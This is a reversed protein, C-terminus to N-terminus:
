VRPSKVNGTEKERERERGRERERKRRRFLRECNVTIRDTHARIGRRIYVGPSLSILERPFHRSAAVRRPTSASSSSFHSIVFTSCWYSKKDTIKITTCVFSLNHTNCVLDCTLLKNGHFTKIKIKIRSFCLPLVYLVLITKRKTKQIFFFFQLM